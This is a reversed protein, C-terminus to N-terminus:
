LNHSINKILHSQVLFPQPVLVWHNAIMRSFYLSRIMVLIRYLVLFYIMFSCSCSDSNELLILTEVASEHIDNSDFIRSLYIMYLSNTCLTFRQSV